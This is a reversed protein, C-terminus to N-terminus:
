FREDSTQDHVFDCFWMHNQFEARIRICSGDNFYLRGRKPQKRPVKLGEKRWNKYAREHNM